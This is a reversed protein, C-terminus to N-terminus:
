RRAEIWDKGIPWLTREFEPRFFGFHGIKGAGIEEPAIRRYEIPAARYLDHMSRVGQASMMEDDTFSLSM